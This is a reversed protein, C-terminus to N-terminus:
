LADAAAKPPDIAQVRETAQLWYLRYDYSGALLHRRIWRKVRHRFDTWLLVVALVLLSLLFLIAETPIGTEGWQSAWSALLSSTILYIGVSLLTISSYIVGQSVVVRGRGSSRRWSVLILICSFLFLIPFLQLSTQSLFGYRPSYLLV